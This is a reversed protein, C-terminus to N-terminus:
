PRSLEEVEFVTIDIVDGPGLRYAGNPAFGEEREPSVSREAAPAPRPSELSLAVLWFVALWLM